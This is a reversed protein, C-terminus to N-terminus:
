GRGLIEAIQAAHHRAHVAHVRVTEPFRYHWGARFPNAIWLADRATADFRKGLARYRQNGAAIRALVADREPTAAPKMISPTDGGRPLKAKGLVLSVFLQQLLWRGPPPTLRGAELEVANAELATAFVDVCVALHDVHQGASWKGPRSRSWLDPELEAAAVLEGLATEMDAMLVDFMEGRFTMPRLM